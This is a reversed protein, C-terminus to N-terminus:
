CSLAFPVVIAGFSKYFLFPIGVIFALTCFFILPWDTVALGINLPPTNGAYQAQEMLSRIIELVNLEAVSTNRNASFM